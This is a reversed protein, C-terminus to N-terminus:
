ARVGARSPRSCKQRLRILQLFKRSSKRSSGRDGIGTELKGQLAATARFMPDIREKSFGEMAEVTPHVILVPAPDQDVFYGLINLCAETKGLQSAVMVVVTEIAPDVLADMVGRLYPTRETRWQGHEPSTGPPIMRYRDAWESVTMRPRPLCVAAAAERWITNM